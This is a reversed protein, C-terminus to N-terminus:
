VAGNSIQFGKQDAHADAVQSFLASAAHAQSGDRAASSSLSMVPRTAFRRARQDHQGHLATEMDRYRRRSGGLSKRKILLHFELERLSATLSNEGPLRKAARGVTRFCDTVSKTLRTNADTPESM